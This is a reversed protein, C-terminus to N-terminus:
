AYMMVSMVLLLLLKTTQKVSSKNDGLISLSKLNAHPVTISIEERQIRLKPRLYAKDNCSTSNCFYFISNYVPRNICGRSVFDIEDDINTYCIHNHPCVM